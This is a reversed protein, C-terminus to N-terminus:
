AGGLRETAAFLDLTLLDQSDATMILGLSLLAFSGMYINVTLGAMM